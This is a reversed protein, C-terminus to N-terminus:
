FTKAIRCHALELGCKPCYEYDHPWKVEGCSIRSCKTYDNNPSTQPPDKAESLHRIEQVVEDVLKNHEDAGCNCVKPEDENHCGEEPEMPCSYWGDECYYHTVKLRLMKDILTDM